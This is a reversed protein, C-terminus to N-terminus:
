LPWSASKNGIFPSFTAPIGPFCDKHPTALTDNGFGGHVIDDGDFGHVIDNGALADIYDNGMTGVLTPDDFQTGVIYNSSTVLSLNVTATNSLLGYQDVVNYQFSALGITNTLPTFLVGDITEVTGLMITHFQVTGNEANFIDNIHLIVNSM